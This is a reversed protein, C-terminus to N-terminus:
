PRSIFYEHLQNYLKLAEKPSKYFWSTFVDEIGSQLTVYYLDEKNDYSMSVEAIDARMRTWRFNGKMEKWTDTDEDKSLYDAVMKYVIYKEYLILYGEKVVCEKRDLMEALPVNIRVGEDTITM